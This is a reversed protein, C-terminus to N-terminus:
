KGSQDPVPIAPKAAEAAPAVPTAPAQQAPAPKAQAIIQAYAAKLKASKDALSLGPYLAGSHQNIFQQETM